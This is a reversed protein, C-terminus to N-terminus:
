VSDINNAFFQMSEKGIPGVYNMIVSVFDRVLEALPKIDMQQQDSLQSFRYFLM